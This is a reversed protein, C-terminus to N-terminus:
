KLEVVFEAPQYQYTKDKSIVVFSFKKEKILEETDITFSFGSNLLKPNKFYESVSTRPEGYSGSYYKDGVKLFVNSAVDNALSDIAWGELTVAQATQDIVVSTTSQVLFNNVYDLWMFGEPPNPVVKAEKYIYYEDFYGEPYSTNVIFSHIAPEMYELIVVDPNFTNVLNKINGMNREHIFTLESFSEALNPLMFMYIFSDGMILAKPLNPDSQNVYRYSLHSDSLNLQDFPGHEQISNYTGKYTFSYDKEEFVKKSFKQSQRIYPTIEFDEWSLVKIDPLDKKIEEMLDLYGIFSGYNNWHSLDYNQSYVIESEKAMLLSEKPSFINIGNEKLYDVVIDTRSTDTVKLFTDPMYEPYITEKDPNVMTIFPIKERKFYDNLDSFVKKYQLLQEETPLDLNQYALVMNPYMLYLWDEKGIVTDKRASKGFLEYQILTNAKVIKDRFGINDNFWIEFESIFHTNLGGQGNTFAPFSALVRNEIHSIMGSTKNVTLLPISIALCFLIVLFISFVKHAKM